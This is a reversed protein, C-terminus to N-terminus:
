IHILSLKKAESQAGVGAGADVPIFIQAVDIEEPAGKAPPESRPVSGGAMARMRDAIFNDIEADSIKIKTEVSRERFRSVVVDDRLTEKYREFSMGTALVRTKFEAYSLKNKAAIDGIIKDLEKNSVAIGEQEANQLQIKEIILRDLILQRLTLGEPLKVGQKQLTTIRDDIEKRTVYGTNVVAAVGDINRIKSETANTTKPLDQSCVIGVSSIAGLLIATPLIQKLHNRFLMM